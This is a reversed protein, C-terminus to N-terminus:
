REKETLKLDHAQALRTLPYVSPTIILLQLWQRTLSRISSAVDTTHRNVRMHTNIFMTRFM